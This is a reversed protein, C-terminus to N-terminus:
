RFRNNRFLQRLQPHHRLDFKRISAVVHWRTNMAVVQQILDYLVQAVRDSRAADLADIVLFGAETGPWVKLVDLLDHDLGIDSRLAGLSQAEVRDVAFFVVDRNEKELLRDVLDHLTGSKGAGPEGVIIVSGTEAHQHLADASHRKIKVTEAGVSIISLNKLLDLTRRSYERLRRIDARYSRPEQLPINEQQLVQALIARDGGSQNSAFDLCATVLANWAQNAQDPNQLVASRLTQKAEREASGGDEFDLVMVWVLSLLERIDDNTPQSGFTRQWAYELHEKIVTLVRREDANTPAKDIMQNPLLQRLKQLLSPLHLRIPGSSSAGTILILRDRNPDLPRNFQRSIQQRTAAYQRVFQDLTAALASNRSHELNTTHKIQVFICGGESTGILLDDVPFETECRLFKFTTGVSLNWPLSSSQEALIQIAAWATVQAQFQFGAVATAGGSGG